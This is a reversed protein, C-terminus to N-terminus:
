RRYIKVPYDVGKVTKEAALVYMRESNLAVEESVLCRASLDRCLGEIRSVLNVAQGIVTFDLRTRGGINGYFVEGIHLGIGFELGDPWDSDNKASLVREIAHEANRLAASKDGDVPFIALVADGIFKLVEGNNESVAHTIVEFYTNIADLLVAPERTQAFQTFGRLDSMWIVAEIFEGDGRHVQGDLVRTGARKGIFTDALTRALNKQTYHEVTASIELTLGNILNINETSFGESNK